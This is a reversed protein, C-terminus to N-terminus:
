EYSNWDRSASPEALRVTFVRTDFPPLIAPSTIRVGFSGIERETSSITSRTGDNRTPANVTISFTNGPLIPALASSGGGGPIIVEASVIGAAPGVTGDITFAQGYLPRAPTMTVVNIPAFVTGPAATLRTTFNELGVILGDVTTASFNAIRWYTLERAGPSYYIEESNGNVTSQIHRNDVDFIAPDGVMTNLFTSAVSISTAFDVSAVTNLGLAPVDLTLDGDIGRYGFATWSEGTTNGIVPDITPFDLLELGGTTVNDREFAHHLAIDLAAGFPATPGGCTLASGSLSDIIGCLTPSGNVAQITGATLPTQFQERIQAMDSVGVFSEGTGSNLPNLTLEIDVFEGPIEIGDQSLTLRATATTLILSGATRNRIYALSNQFGQFGTNVVATPTLANVRLAFTDQFSLGGDIEIAVGGGMDALVGDLDIRFDRSYDWTEGAHWTPVDDALGWPDQAQVRSLSGILITAGLLAMLINRKM